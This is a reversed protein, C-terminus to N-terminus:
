YFFYYLHFLLFHIPSFFSYCSQSVVMLGSVLVSTLTVNSFIACASLRTVVKIPSLTDGLRDHISSFTANPKSSSSVIKSFYGHIFTKSFLPSNIHRLSFLKDIQM